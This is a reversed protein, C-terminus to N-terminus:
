ETRTPASAKERGPVETLLVAPFARFGKATGRDSIYIALRGAEDLPVPAKGCLHDVAADSYLKIEWPTAIVFQPKDRWEERFIVWPTMANESKDLVIVCGVKDRSSSQFENGVHHDMFFKRWASDSKRLLVGRPEPKKPPKKEDREKDDKKKDDKKAPETKVAVEEVIEDDEGKLRRFIETVHGKGDVWEIESAYVWNRGRRTDVLLLETKEGLGEKGAEKIIAPVGVSVLQYRGVQPPRPPADKDAEKKEPQDTELDQVPIRTFTKPEEGEEPERLDEEIVKYRWMRGTVTDCKLLITRRSITVRGDIAGASRIRHTQWVFRGIPPRPKPKPPAKPPAMGRVAPFLVLCATLVIGHHRM